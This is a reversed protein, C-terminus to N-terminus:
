GTRVIGIYPRHAGYRADEYYSKCVHAQIAMSLFSYSCVSAHNKNSYAAFLLIIPASPQIAVRLPKPILIELLSDCSASSADNSVVVFGSVQSEALMEFLSFEAQLTSCVLGAKPHLRRPRKLAAIKPRGWSKPLTLHMLQLM